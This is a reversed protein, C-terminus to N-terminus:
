KWDGFRVDKIRKTAKKQDAISIWGGRELRKNLMSVFIAIQSPGHRRVRLAHDAAACFLFWGDESNDAHGTEVAQVFLGALMGTERLQSVDDIHPLPRDVVPLATGDSDELPLKASVVRSKAQSPKAQRTKTPRHQGVNDSTTPVSRTKSRKWRMIVYDPAHHALDHIAFSGNEHMDLFGAYVLADSLETCDPDDAILNTPRNLSWSVCSAIDRSNWGTLVGDPGISHRTGGYAAHWLCELMGVALETTIGLREKLRNLKKPNEWLSNLAM